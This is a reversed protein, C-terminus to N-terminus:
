RRDDTNPPPEMQESAKVFGYPCNRCGNTCCYGRDRLFKATFVWRGESDVTYDEGEILPRDSM